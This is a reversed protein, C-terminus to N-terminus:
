EAVGDEAVPVEEVFGVSSFYWIVVYEGGQGDFNRLRWSVVLDFGALM